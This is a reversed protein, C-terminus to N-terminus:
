MKKGEEKRNGGGRCRNEGGERGGDRRGEKIGQKEGIRGEGKRIKVRVWVM